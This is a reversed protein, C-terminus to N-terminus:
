NFMVTELTTLIKITESNNLADLKKGYSEYGSYQYLYFEKNDEFSKSSDPNKLAYDSAQKLCEMRSTELARRQAYISDTIAKATATTITSIDM